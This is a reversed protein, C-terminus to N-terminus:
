SGSRVLHRGIEIEVFNRRRLQRLSLLAIMLGDRYQVARQWTMEGPGHEAAQMLEMGWALLDPISQLCPRKNRAPLAARRLRATIRQMWAWEGDPQMARLAMVLFAFYPAVSTTAHGDLLWAVYEAIRQETVREAPRLSPDLQGQAALWALWRGYGDRVGNRTAPRWAAGLGGPDLPDGPAIAASWAARDPEPWRDLPLVHRNM